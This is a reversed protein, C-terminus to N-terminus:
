CGEVRKLERIVKRWDGRESNLFIRAKKEEKVKSGNNSYGMDAKKKPGEHGGNREKVGGGRGGVSKPKAKIGEGGMSTSCKRKVGRNKKGSEGKEIGGRCDRGGCGLLRGRERGKRVGKVREASKKGKL